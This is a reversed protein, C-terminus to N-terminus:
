TEGSDSRSKLLKPLTSFFDYLAIWGGAWLTPFVHRPSPRNFQPTIASPDQNSQIANLMAAVSSPDNDEISALVTGDADLVYVMDPMLGLKRHLSGAVDDVLIQRNETDQTRLQSAAEIKDTIADHASTREGPHAERVYLVLFKVDSYERQLDLMPHINSRYLPCTLSGTELVTLAGLQGHLTSEEGSLQFIKSDPISEGVAVKGHGGFTYHDPSFRDYNYQM